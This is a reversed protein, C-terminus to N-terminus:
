SGLANSAAEATERVMEVIEDRRADDVRFAPCPASIAAVIRGDEYVAAAPAWVGEDIEENSVAWGRAIDREVEALYGDRGNM